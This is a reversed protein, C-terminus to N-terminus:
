EAIIKEDSSFQKKIELGLQKVLKIVDSESFLHERDIVEVAVVWGDKVKIAELRKLM